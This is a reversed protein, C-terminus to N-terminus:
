EHGIGKDLNESVLFDTGTLDNYAHGKVTIGRAELFSVALDVPDAAGQLTRSDAWRCDALTVASHKATPDQRTVEFLRLTTM